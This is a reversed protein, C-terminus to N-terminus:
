AMKSPQWDPDFGLLQCAARYPTGWEAETTNPHDLVQMATIATALIPSAAAAEALIKPDRESAWVVDEERIVEPLQTVMLCPEGAHPSSAPHRHLHMVWRKGGAEIDFRASGFCRAIDAPVDFMIM